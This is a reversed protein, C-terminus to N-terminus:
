RSALYDIIQQAEQDTLVAGKRRMRAVTAAWGKADKQASVIRDLSHCMDCKAEVLARGKDVEPDSSPALGGPSSGGASSCGAAGFLASVAVSTAAVTRAVAHRRM